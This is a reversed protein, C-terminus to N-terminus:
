YIYLLEPWADLSALIFLTSLGEFIDEFNHHTIIWEEGKELCKLLAIMM